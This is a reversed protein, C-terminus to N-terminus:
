ADASVFGKAEKSYKFGLAKARSQLLAGLEKQSTLAHEMVQIGALAANLTDADSVHELMERGQEMAKDYATRKPGYDDAEKILNARAAEFLRTLFDNKDGPNLTPVEMVGSIGYCSKAFYEECPSFGIMRKKGMMFMHAGLDAPTWVIDKASGECSLRTTIVDGKQVETTHFITICHKGDMRIQATLRDFERKIVGFMARGDKAAKPEQRKAWPQMLQVLSGGTDLIITEAAKYEETEMDKLLEEYSDEITTLKRHEARVRAIGKDLDFLLPNPASLALTTKGLGPQGSLVMNFHKNSFDLAEPKVIAM